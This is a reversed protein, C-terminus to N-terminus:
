ATDMAKIQVQNQEDLKRLFILSEFLNDMRIQEALQGMLGKESLGKLLTEDYGAKILCQRIRATSM